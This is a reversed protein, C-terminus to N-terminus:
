HDPQEESSGEIPLNLPISLPDAASKEPRANTRKLPKTEVRGGAMQYDSIKQTYIALENNYTDIYKQREHDSLTKWRPSLMKTTEPWSVERQLEERLRPRQAQCWMLFANAPRKPAKPDPKVKKPAPGSKKRAPTAAQKQQAERESDSNSTGDSRSAGKNRDLKDYLYRKEFRLKQINQKAKELRLLMHENREELEGVKRKLMKYKRLKDEDMLGTNVGEFALENKPDSMMAAGSPTQAPSPRRKANKQFGAEGEGAARDPRDEQRATPQQKSARSCRPRDCRSTRGRIRVANM